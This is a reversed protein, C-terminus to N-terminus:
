YWKNVRNTLQHNNYWEPDNLHLRGAEKKIISVAPALAFVVSGKECHEPIQRHMM